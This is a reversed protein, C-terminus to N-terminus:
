RVRINMVTNLVTGNTGLGFWTFETKTRESSYTLALWKFIIRENVGVDEMNIRGKRNEVLVRSV